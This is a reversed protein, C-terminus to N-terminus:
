LTVRVTLVTLIALCNEPYDAVRFDYGSKEAAVSSHGRSRSESLRHKLPLQEAQGPHYLKLISDLREAGGHVTM